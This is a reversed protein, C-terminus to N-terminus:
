EELSEKDLGKSSVVTHNKSGKEFFRWCEHDDRLDTFTQVAFGNEFIIQLDGFRNISATKVIFKYENDPFYKDILEDYFNNGIKDWDKNFKEEDFSEEDINHEQLYKNSPIFMDGKEIIIDYGCTFRFRCDIHLAYRPVDVTKFIINKNEDIRRVQKKVLEGFGLSLMSACRTPKSMEKGIIIEINKNIIHFDEKIM